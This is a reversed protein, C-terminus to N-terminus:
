ELSLRSGRAELRQIEAVYGPYDLPSQLLGQPDAFLVAHIQSPILPSAVGFRRGLGAIVAAPSPLADGPLLRRPPSLSAADAQWHGDRFFRYFAEGTLRAALRIPPPRGLPPKGQPNAPRRKRM